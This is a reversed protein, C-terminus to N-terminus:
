EKIIVWEASKGNIVIRLIYSGSPRQFITLLNNQELQLSQFLVKGNEDFLSIRGKIEPNFNNIVIRIDGKTPNPFINIEYKDINKQIRKSQFKNKNVSSDQSIPM